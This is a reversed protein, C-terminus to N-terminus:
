MEDLRMQYSFICHGDRQEVWVAHLSWRHARELSYYLSTDQLTNVKKVVTGNKFSFAYSRYLFFDSTTSSFVKDSPSTQPTEGEAIYFSHM